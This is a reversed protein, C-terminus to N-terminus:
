AKANPVGWILALAGVTAIAVAVWEQGTIQGDTYAAAIAGLGTMIAGVIAKAYRDVPV